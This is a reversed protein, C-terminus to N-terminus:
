LARQFISSDDYIKRLAALEAASTVREPAFSISDFAHTRMFAILEPWVFPSVLATARLVDWTWPASTYGRLVWWATSSPTLQEAPPRPPPTPPVAAAAPAAAAADPTSATAAAAPAVSAPAAAVETPPPQPAAAPADARAPAAVAEAAAPAAAAAAPAGLTATEASEELVRQDELERVRQELTAIRARLPATCAEAYEQLLLRGAAAAVDASLIGVHSADAGARTTGRLRRGIRYATHTGVATRAAAGGRVAFPPPPM